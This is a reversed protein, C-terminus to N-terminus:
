LVSGVQPENGGKIATAGIWVPKHSNTRGCRTTLEQGRFVQLGPCTWQLMQTEVIPNWSKEM